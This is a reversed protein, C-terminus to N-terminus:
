TTFWFIDKVLANIRILPSNIGNHIVVMLIAVKNIIIICKNNELNSVSM